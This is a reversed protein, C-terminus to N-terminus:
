RDEQIRHIVAPATLTWLPVLIWIRGRTVDYDAFITEWSLHEVFRGFGVEFVLTLAVWSAGVALGTRTSPLPWRRHLFWVYVTISALLTVTALQRAATEGIRDQYGLQRLTGNAIALVVLGLWATLWSRWISHESM